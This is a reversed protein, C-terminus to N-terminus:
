WVLDINHSWVTDPYKVVRKIALTYRNTMAGIGTAAMFDNFKDKLQEQFSELLRVFCKASVHPYAQAMVHGFPDQDEAWSITHEALTDYEIGRETMAQITTKRLRAYPGDRDPHQYSSAELPTKLILKAAM